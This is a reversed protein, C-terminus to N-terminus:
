ARAHGRNSDIYFTGIGSVSKPSLRYGDPFRTRSEMMRRRAEAAFTQDGKMLHNVVERMGNPSILETRRETVGRYFSQDRTILAYLSSCIQQDELPPLQVFQEFRQRWAPHESPRKRFSEEVTMVAFWITIAMWYWNLPPQCRFAYDDAALEQAVREESTICHRVEHHGLLCHAIEHLVIFKECLNALRYRIQRFHNTGFEALEGPRPDPGLANFHEVGSEFARVDRYLDWRLLCGFVMNATAYEYPDPSQLSLAARSMMRLFRSAGADVLIVFTGSRLRIARAGMQAGWSVALRFQRVRGHDGTPVLDLADDFLAEIQIRRQTDADIMRIEALRAQTELDHTGWGDLEEQLVSAKAGMSSEHANRFAEDLFRGEIRRIYDDDSLM